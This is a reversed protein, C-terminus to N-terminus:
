TCYGPRRVCHHRCATRAPQTFSLTLFCFAVITSWSIRGNEKQRKGEREGRGALHRHRTDVVAGSREEIARDEDAAAIAGARDPVASFEIIGGRPPEPRRAAHGCGALIGRGSWQGRPPD